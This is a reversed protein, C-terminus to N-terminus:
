ICLFINKSSHILKEYEPVLLIAIRNIRSQSVLQGKSDFIHSYAGEVALSCQSMVQAERISCIAQLVSVAKVDETKTKKMLDKVIKLSDDQDYISFNGTMEPSGVVTRWHEESCRRLLKCGFSHFTGITVRSAMDDGLMDNLRRKMESAAKNTFTIAIISSPRQKLTHILYEIRHTLVRTKGSGPGAVCISPMNLPSKVAEEQAKNLAFLSVTTGGCCSKMRFSQAAYSLFLLASLIVAIARM